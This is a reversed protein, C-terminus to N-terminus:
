RNRGPPRKPAIGVLVGTKGCWNKTEHLNDKLCNKWTKLVTKSDLTKKKFIKTNTHVSDTRLQTNIAQLWKNHIEYTTHTKSTDNNWTITRECRLKWIMYISESVIIRFLRNLGKDPNGNAKKYNSLCCGLIAGYNTPIPTQSRKGWLENALTWIQERGPADCETLIHEMTETTNCHACTGRHEYNEINEWFRGIKFADHICKWIFERTKKTLDKHKTSKWISEHTPAVDYYETACAQIRDLNIETSRRPQPPNLMKIKRYLDRQALASLKAGSPITNTPANEAIDNQPPAKRAGENALKDGEDNGRIGSHGKVWTLETTNSRYRTWATIAKFLTAHKVYMWGQDEWKELNKTLGQIAYMSDTRITIAQDPPNTKLAHLIAYLEGTQNSQDPGPVRFSTNRPDNDDYWIGSGATANTEGNNTCSGDTYITIPPNNFRGTRNARSTTEAPAPETDTFVRFCDTTSLESRVSPALHGPFWHSCRPYITPEPDNKEWHIWWDCKPYM